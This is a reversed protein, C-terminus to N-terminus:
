QPMPTTAPDRQFASQTVVAVQPHQLLASSLFVGPLLGSGRPFTHDWRLWNETEGVMRTGTSKQAESGIKVHIFPPFPTRTMLIHVTSCRLVGPSRPKLGTSFLHPVAVSSM